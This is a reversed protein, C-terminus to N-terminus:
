RSLTTCAHHTSFLTRSPQKNTENNTKRREREENIQKVKISEKRKACVCMWLLHKKRQRNGDFFDKSCFFAVLIPRKEYGTIEIQCVISEEEEEVGKGETNGDQRNIERKKTCNTQKEREGRRKNLDPGTTLHTDVCLILPVRWRVYYM